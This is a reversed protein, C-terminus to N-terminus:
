LLLIFAEVKRPNNLAQLDVARLHDAYTETVDQAEIKQRKWDTAPLKVLVHITEEIPTDQDFYRQLRWLPNMEENGHVLHEIEDPDEGNSLKRVSDGDSSLSWAGERQTVYLKMLVAPFDYM